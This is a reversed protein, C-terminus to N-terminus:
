ALLAELQKAVRDLVKLYNDLLRTARRQHALARDLQALAGRIQKANAYVKHTAGAAQTTRSGQSILQRARQLAAKEDLIQNTTPDRYVAEGHEWTDIKARAQEDIRKAALADNLRKELPGLCPGQALAKQLDAQGRDTWDKARAFDKEAEVELHHADKFTPIVKLSIEEITVGIGVYFATVEAVEVATESIAKLAQLGLGKEAGIKASEKVYDNRFDRIEQVAEGLENSGAKSFDEGTQYEHEAKALLNPDCLEETLTVTRGGGNQVQNGCHLEVTISFKESTRGRPLTLVLTIPNKLNFITGSSAATKGDDGKAYAVVYHTGQTSGCSASAQIKVAASPGTFVEGDPPSTIDISPGAAAGSAAAAAMAVLATTLSTGLLSRM